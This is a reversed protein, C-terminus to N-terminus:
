EDPWLEVAMPNAPDAAWEQLSAAYVAVDTFGLRTMIFANTSAAIGGGCYTIARSDHDSGFMAALEEAPRFQGSDDLLSTVPVNTAGPIHGPRDYMTWEGRFHASPMADILHISDQELSALVEDRDAILEPRVSPTLTGPRRPSPETSLPGGAAEWANLGGDLLAARDFGVWRLMWWVRAAWSSNSADYLVVRSDDGVGLAGMAAAFREPTPVAYGYPSDGDALDTTLDAFGATPIHGAEYNARGSVGRMGGDETREILVTCDLVVLDPDDLNEKLWEATVLTDMEAATDGPLATHNGAPSCAAMLAVVAVLLLRSFTSDHSSMQAEVTWSWQAEMM